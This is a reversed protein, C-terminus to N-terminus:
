DIVTTRGRHRKWKWPLDLLFFIALALFELSILYWPWPGLYDLLSPMAPKRCLYGYNWHFLSDIAGVVLAYLNLALFMRLISGARPRFGKRSILFAITVLATGHSWFFLAFDWSPFGKGLDPTLIAQLTGGLGWFYAIESALQNSFFLAVLCAILVWDCLELPLNYEWSLARAIGMRIYFPLAYSLLIIGLGRGVWLRKSPALSRTVRITLLILFAILGLVILHQGSFPKFPMDEEAKKAPEPAFWATVKQRLM